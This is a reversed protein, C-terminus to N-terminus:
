EDDSVCECVHVDDLECVIEEETKRKDLRPKIIKKYTLYGITAIMAGIGAYMLGKGINDTVIEEVNEVNMEEFRMENNEM